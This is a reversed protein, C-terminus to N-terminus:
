GPKSIFEFRAAGEGPTSIASRRDRAAPVWFRFFFEREEIKKQGM